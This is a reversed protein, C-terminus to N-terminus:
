TLTLLDFFFFLGDAKNSESERERRENRRDKTERSDGKHPVNIM